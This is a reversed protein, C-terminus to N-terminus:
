KEVEVSYEAALKNFINIVAMAGEGYEWALLQLEENCREKFKEAFEKVTDSQKRYGAEHLNKAIQEAATKLANCESCKETGNYCENDLFTSEILPLCHGEHQLFKALEKIENNM